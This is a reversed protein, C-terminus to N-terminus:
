MWCALASRLRAGSESGLALPTDRCGASPYPPARPARLRYPVCSPCLAGESSPTGAPRPWASVAARAVLPNPTPTPARAATLYPPGFEGGVALPMPMSQLAGAEPGPSNDGPTFRERSVASISVCARSTPLDVTARSVPAPSARRAAGAAIGEPVGAPLESFAVGPSREAPFLTAADATVVSVARRMRCVSSLNAPWFDPASVSPANAEGAAFGVFKDDLRFM